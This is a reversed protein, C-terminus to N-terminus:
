FTKNEGIASNPISQFHPGLKKVKSFPMPNINTMVRFTFPYHVSRFYNVTTIQNVSNGKFFKDFFYQWLKSHLSSKKHSIIYSKPSM